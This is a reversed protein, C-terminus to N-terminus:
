DNRQDMRTENSLIYVPEIHWKEMMHDLDYLPRGSALGFYINMRKARPTLLNHRVVLTDDIDCVVLKLDKIMTGTYWSFSSVM